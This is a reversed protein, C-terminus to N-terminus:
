KKSRSARAVEGWKDVSEPDKRMQEETLYMVVRSATGEYRDKLRDAMENWTSVLAFHDLMDDSITDAMGQLDGAGMKDRLATTVGEFGLDEFQFSYNPTTGYFAIQTKARHVWPAREEATDGAVAFVPVILDVDSSERGASQAGQEIEPLLRNEIYHMSHMPHVHVGDAVQGAVSNMLPGVSSIDVKIEGFDHSRPKWADPLLSLSYFDGEHNLREEGRFAKFCAKVALVYDLLRRAPKDFDSSYRRVVHGKVQSGLGLRFKGKTEGALEWAVQASVMPSRPFAVAIGTTFTLSPAAMAAAAIQMWPVQGTETYLMGSFGQDEVTRALAGANTWTSSGTM